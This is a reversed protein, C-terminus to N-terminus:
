RLRLFAEIKAKTSNTAKDDIDIFLGNYKDALYKALQAKSCFSQSYFVTPVDKDVYMELNIDAPTMAEVCRTWGYVHTEDPFLELISLDNPPVGWFGFKAKCQKLNEVSIEDYIGRTILEIKQKLPICSSSIKVEKKYLNDEFISSIVPFGSDKLIEYAFWGSDCKDKGIPALIVLLESRLYYACNIINKIISCYSEPLIDQKPYGYDIDFDVWVAMPYLQKYKKILEPHPYGWFGIIKKVNM